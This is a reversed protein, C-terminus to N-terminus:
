PILILQSLGQEQSVLQRPCLFVKRCANWPNTSHLLSGRYETASVVMCCIDHNQSDPTPSPEALHAETGNPM